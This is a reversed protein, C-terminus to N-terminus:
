EDNRFGLYYVVLLLNNIIIVDIINKSNNEYRDNFDAAAYVNEIACVGLCSSLIDILYLFVCQLLCIDLWVQPVFSPLSINKEILYIHLIKTDECKKIRMQLYFTNSNDFRICRRLLYLKSTSIMNFQHIILANIQYNTNVVLTINMTKDNYQMM